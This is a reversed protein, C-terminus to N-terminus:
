YSKLPLNERLCQPLYFICKGKIKHLEEVDEVGFFFSHSEAILFSEIVAVLILFLNKLVKSTM